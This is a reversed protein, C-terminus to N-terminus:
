LYKVLKKLKSISVGKEILKQKSILKDLKKDEVTYKCKKCRYNSSGNKDLWIHNCNIQKNIIQLTSKFTFKLRDSIEDKIDM